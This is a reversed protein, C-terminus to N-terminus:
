PNEMSKKLHTKHRVVYILATMIGGDFRYTLLM